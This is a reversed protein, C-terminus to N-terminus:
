GERLIELCYLNRGVGKVLCWELYILQVGIKEGVVNVEFGQCLFGVM